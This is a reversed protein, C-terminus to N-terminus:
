YSLDGYVIISSGGAYSSASYDSEVCSRIKYTSNTLTTTGYGIIPVGDQTMNTKIDATTFGYQTCSVPTSLMSYTYNGVGERNLYDDIYSQSLNNFIYIYRANEPGDDQPIAPPNKFSYDPQIAGWSNQIMSIATSPADKLAYIKGIADEVTTQDVGVNELVKISALYAPDNEPNQTDEVNTNTTLTNVFAEAVQVKNAILTQREIAADLDSQSLTPYNEATLDVTLSANMFEAVMDSRQKGSDLLGTWYAIGGADGDRGLANKYIAKVFDENGMSSYMSVFTPHTAFGASLEQLALLGSKGANLYEEGHSKWYSLGNFDPARNFYSVYLSTIKDELSADRASLSSGLLGAIAVAVLFRNKM